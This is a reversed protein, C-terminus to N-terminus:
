RDNESLKFRIEKPELRNLSLSPPFKLDNESVAMRHSGPKTIDKLDISLTLKETELLQFDQSRGSFTAIIEQPKVNEAVLNEPVSSFQVPVIFSRQIIGLNPYSFLSWLFIAIILSSLSTILTSKMIRWLKLLFPEAAKGSHKRIFRELIAILERRDAVTELKGEHTVAVSGKEESIVLCLADTRESLGLAARHRAGYKKLQERDKSLPLYVGLKKIRNNDIIIAGDHTPTATNFLTLMINKSIKADLEIGETIYTEITERGPFVVLAGVCRDAMEWVIDTMMELNRQPLILRDSKIGFTGVLWFFRRLEMQFVIALIIILAGIVTQMIKGTLSFNFAHALGYILLILGVGVMAPLSRTKALLFIFCYILFATLLIDIYDKLYLNQRVFFFISNLNTWFTIMM